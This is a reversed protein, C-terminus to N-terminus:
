PVVEMGLCGIWLGVVFNEIDRISVERGFGFPQVVVTWAEDIDGSVGRGVPDIRVAVVVDAGYQLGIGNRIREVVDACFGVETVVAVSIMRQM